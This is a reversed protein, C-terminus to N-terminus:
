WDDGDGSDYYYYHEDDDDDTARIVVRYHLPIYFLMESYVICWDLACLSCCCVLVDPVQSSCSSAVTCM